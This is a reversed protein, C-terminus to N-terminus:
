GDRSRKEPIWVFFPTAVSETPNTSGVLRQEPWIALIIVSLKFELNFSCLQGTDLNTANGCM